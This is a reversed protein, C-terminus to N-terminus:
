DSGAIVAEAVVDWLKFHDFAVVEPCDESGRGVGEFNPGAGAESYLHEGLHREEVFDHGVELDFYQFDTQISGM